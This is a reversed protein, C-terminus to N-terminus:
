CLETNDSEKKKFVVSACPSGHSVFAATELCDNGKCLPMIFTSDILDLTFFVHKSRLLMPGGEVGASLGVCSQSPRWVACM